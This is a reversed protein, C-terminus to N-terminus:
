HYMLNVSPPRTSYEVEINMKERIKRKESQKSDCDLLMDSCSERRNKDWRHISTLVDIADIYVRINTSIDMFGHIM